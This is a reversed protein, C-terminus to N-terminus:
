PLAARSIRAAFYRELKESQAELSFNRRLHEWAMRKWGIVEEPPASLAKKLPAYLPLQEPPLSDWDAFNMGRGFPALFFDLGPPLCERVGGVHRAVPVLGHAMAELLTNPLGESYSSLVFIDAQDLLPALDRVFGYFVARSGLGLDRALARLDDLCDGTGAIDWIFDHGGAMLRALTRALEAHGKNANVQSSSVIRLPKGAKHPPRPTPAKASYVVETDKKEVFPLQALMGDRIYFCPCLYHPRMLRSALRSPFSNKIDGPLGVRQVVPLGLLRAALGATSLDKGVNVLVAEMGKQRFERAFFAISLPNFDCGFNVLDASLGSESARRIFAPDRGYLCVQHGRATLAAAFEVSWTKVGGWRKTANCFALRMLFPGTADPARTARL